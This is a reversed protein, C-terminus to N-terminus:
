FNDMDEQTAKRAPEEKKPNNQEIWEEIFDLCFGITMAEMDALDLGVKKCM